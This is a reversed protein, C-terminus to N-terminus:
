ASLASTTIEAGLASGALWASWTTNWDSAGPDGKAVLDDITRSTHLVNVIDGYQAM